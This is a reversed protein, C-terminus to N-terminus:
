PIVEDVEGFAFAGEDWGWSDDKQGQKTKTNAFIPLRNRMHVRDIEWLLERELPKAARFCRLSEKLQAMSTHGLLTSTVPARDRAWRLSLETLSIGAEKALSAYARTAEDAPGSRYRGFRAVFHLPAGDTAM